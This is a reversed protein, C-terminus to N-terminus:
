FLDWWNSRALMAQGSEELIISGAKMVYVRQSIKFAAKVNQEVLIISTGHEENISKIINLVQMFAIPSLGSSPEDILLLKPERMLGMAIGLLRREGGSLTGAAQTFRMKLIPFLSVIFELRKPDFKDDSFCSLELNTRVDLDSFIFNEQPLNFIGCSLKKAPSDHTIDIDNYVIRGGQIKILGFIAKLTTSKGAGNHGIISVIEKNGVSLSIKNVITKQGYGASISEAYFSM